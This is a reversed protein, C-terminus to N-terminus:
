ICISMYVHQKKRYMHMHSVFYMTFLLHRRCIEWSRVLVRVAIKSHLFRLRRLSMQPLVPSPIVLVCGDFFPFHHWLLYRIFCDHHLSWNSTAKINLVFIHHSFSCYITVTYRIPNYWCTGVIDMLMWWRPNSELHWFFSEHQLWCWSPNDVSWFPMSCQQVQMMRDLKDRYGVAHGCRLRSVYQFLIPTWHAAWMGSM